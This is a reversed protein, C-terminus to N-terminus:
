KRHLGDTVFCRSALSVVRFLTMSVLRFYVAILVIIDYQILWKQKCAHTSKKM